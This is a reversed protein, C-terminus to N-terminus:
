RCFRSIPPVIASFIVDNDLRQKPKMERIIPGPSGKQDIKPLYKELGWRITVDIGASNCALL